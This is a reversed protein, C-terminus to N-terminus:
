NLDFSDFFLMINYYSAALSISLQQELLAISISISLYTCGCLCIHLYCSSYLTLRVSQDNMRVEIKGDISHDEDSDHGDISHDDMRVM